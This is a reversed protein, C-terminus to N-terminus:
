RAAAFMAQPTIELYGFFPRDHAHVEFLSISVAFTPLALRNWHFLMQIALAIAGAALLVFLFMGVETWFNLFDPPM